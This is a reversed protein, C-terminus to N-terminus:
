DVKKRLAQLPEAFKRPMGGAVLREVADDIAENYGENWACHGCMAEAEEYPNETM